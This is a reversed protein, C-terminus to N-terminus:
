ICSSRIQNYSVVKGSAIVDQIGFANSFFLVILITGIIGMGVLLKIRVALNPAVIFKSVFAVAMAVGSLVFLTRGALMLNYYLVSGLIAVMPIKVLKRMSMFLLATAVAVIMCALAAQGTASLVSKTWFDLMNRELIVGRNM